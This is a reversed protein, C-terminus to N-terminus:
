LREHVVERIVATHRDSVIQCILNPRMSRGSLSLLSGVPQPPLGFWVKSLDSAVWGPLRFGNGM